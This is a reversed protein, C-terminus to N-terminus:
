QAPSDGLPSLSPLASSQERRQGAAPLAALAGIAHALEAVAPAASERGYLARNLRHIAEAPPGSLRAAIASLSWPGGGFELAAWDRLHQAAREFAQERVAREASRLLRRRTGLRTADAQQRRAPSRRWRASLVWALVTAVWLTVALAAAWQWRRLLAPAVRDQTDRSTTGPAGLAPLAESPDGVGPAVALKSPALEAIVWRAEDVNWWPLTVRPVAYEGAAAAIVAYRETRVGVMGAESPLTELEPQDPYVRVSPDLAPQLPPLQNAMLGSAKIRVARTVPEGAVFERSEPNWRETLEVAAAPLWAADAFAPPPPPIPQVTLRLPSSRFLRRSSLRSRQWIRGSYVFEGIGLEGSAQPFLAYRREYVDYTRDDIRKSFSRDNGLQQVLVEPGDFTPELLQEQRVLVARYVRVTLVLQAQVWTTDRDLAVEVFIDRGAASTTEAARVTISLPQSTERGVRIAPIELVGEQRAILQYTFVRQQSIEGNYIRTNNSEQAGLVEFNDALVSLDPEDSLMNDVTIALNFSENADIMARDVSAIVRAAAHNALAFLGVLLLTRAVM